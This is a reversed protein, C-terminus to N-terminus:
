EWISLCWVPFGYLLQSLPQVCHPKDVDEWSVKVDMGATDVELLLQRLQGLGQMSPLVFSCSRGPELVTRTKEGGASLECRGSNTM